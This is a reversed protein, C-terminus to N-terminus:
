GAVSVSAAVLKVERVDMLPFEGEDTALLRQGLGHHVDPAPESWETGRAMVLRPDAARESGPYRTPVFAVSQGGTTFTLVVPIWAVDRLDTPKEIQIESLRTFPIWYYKGNVIAELIPGLRTDADAIWAFPQGDITGSTAPAEEFARERLPRAEEFKGEAGLQTARLLFAMWEAPEGFFLPAQRGAFVERRRVECRLIERYTQNMAVATPDLDSAVGLQTLAREWQGLVVLTQFLFIRLKPDAPRKKVEAQLEALTETLRGARVHEEATM